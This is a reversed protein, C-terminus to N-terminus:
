EWGDLVRNRKKPFLVYAIFHILVRGDLGGLCSLGLRGRTTGGSVSIVTWARIFCAM